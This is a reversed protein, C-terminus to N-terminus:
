DDARCVDATRVLSIPPIPLDCILRLMLRDGNHEIVEFRCKDDGPDVIERFRVKDGVIIERERPRCSQSVPDYGIREFIENLHQGTADFEARDDPAAIAQCEAIWSKIEKASAGKGPKPPQQQQQRANKAM